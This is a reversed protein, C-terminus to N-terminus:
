EIGLQRRRRAMEQKGQHPRYKSRYPWFWEWTKMNMWKKARERFQKILQRQLFAEFDSKEQKQMM